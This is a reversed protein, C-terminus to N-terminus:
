GCIRLEETNKGHAWWFLVLLGIGSAAYLGTFWISFWTKWIAGVLLMETFLVYILEGKFSSYFTNGKESRKVATNLNM